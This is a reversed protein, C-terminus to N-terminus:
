AEGGIAPSLPGTSELQRMLRYESALVDRRLRLESLRILEAILVATALVLPAAVLLLVGVPMPKSAGKALSLLAIGITAALTFAFGMKAGALGHVAANISGRRLVVGALAAWSLGILALGALAARTAPPVTAPETIVLSGCVTASAVGSLGVLSFKAWGAPSLKQEFIAHLKREYAARGPTKGPADLDLLQARLNNSETTM